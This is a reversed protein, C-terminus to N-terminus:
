KQGKFFRGDVDESIDITIDPKLERVLVKIEDTYKQHFELLDNWTKITKFKDELSAPISIIQYDMLKARTSLIIKARM